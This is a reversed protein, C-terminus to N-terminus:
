SCKDDSVNVSAVARQLSDQFERFPLRVPVQDADSIEDISAGVAAAYEFAEEIELTVSCDRDDTSIM